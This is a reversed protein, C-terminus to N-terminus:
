MRDNIRIFNSTCLKLFTLYFKMTEVGSLTTSQVQTGCNIRKGSCRSLRTNKQTADTVGVVAFLFHFRFDQRRTYVSRRPRSSSFRSICCLLMQKSNHKAIKHAKQGRHLM